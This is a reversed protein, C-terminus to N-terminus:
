GPPDLAGGTGEQGSLRLGVLVEREAVVPPDVHVIRPFRGWASVAGSPGVVLLGGTRSVLWTGEGIPRGGEGRPPAAVQSRLDGTAADLVLARGHGAPHMLVTGTRWAALLDCCRPGADVALARQWRITGDPALGVVATGPGTGATPARRSTLLAVLSGDVETPPHLVGDHTALLRGDGPDLLRTQQPGHVAFWPGHPVPRGAEEFRVAGTVPDLVQHQGDRSTVVGLATMSHIGATRSSWLPEGDHADFATVRESGSGDQAELVLVVEDGIAQVVRPPSGTRRSWRLAGDDADRVQIWAPRGTVAVLREGVHLGIPADFAVSFTGDPTPGRLRASWRPAGTAADFAHLDDDITAVVLGHAGSVEGPRTPLERRWRECGEPVCHLDPARFPDLAASREAPSLPSAQPVAGPEPLAIGDDSTVRDSGLVGGVVMGVVVVVLCLGLLVGISTPWPRRAGHGDSSPADRPGHEPLATGCRGCFRAGAHDWAAHCDPCRTPAVAGL